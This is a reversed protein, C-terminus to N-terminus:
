RGLLRSSSSSGIGIAQRRRVEARSQWSLSAAGVFMMDTAEYMWLTPAIDLVMLKKVCEPWDLALRHAVRGGRDHGVLFFEDFGLHKRRSTLSLVVGGIKHVYMVQVQDHAM